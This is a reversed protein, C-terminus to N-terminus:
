VWDVIGSERWKPHRETFLREGDAYRVPENQAAYTADMAVSRDFFPHKHTFAIDRAEIVCKRKYARYTADGDSWVSKFGPFLFCGESECFARTAIFTTLLRDKRNSDATAIVHPQEEWGQPLRNLLATDYHEIPEMDDSVQIILSGSSVSYAANWAPCSGQFDGRIAVVGGESWPMDATPLMEDFHKTSAEDNKEWALVYEVLAPTYAREAWLRMTALAKAPRGKTSHLLSITPISM